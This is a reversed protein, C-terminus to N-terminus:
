KVSQKTQVLQRTDSIDFVDPKTEIDDGGDEKVAINDDKVRIDDDKVAIDDEKMAIDDEKVAIDDEKM